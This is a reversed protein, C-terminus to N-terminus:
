INCSEHPMLSEHLSRNEDRVSVTSVGGGGWGSGKSFGGILWECDEEEEATRM